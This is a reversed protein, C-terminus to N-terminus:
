IMFDTPLKAGKRVRHCPQGFIKVKKKKMKEFFIKALDNELMGLIHRFTQGVKTWGYQLDNVWFLLIQRGGELGMGFARKARKQNFFKSSENHNFRQDISGEEPIRGGGGGRGRRRDLHLPLLPPARAAGIRVRGRGAGAAAEENRSEVVQLRTERLLNRGRM